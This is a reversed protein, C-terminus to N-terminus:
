FPVEDASVEQPREKFSAMEQAFPKYYPDDKGDDVFPCDYVAVADYYRKDGAKLKESVHNVFAKSPQAELDSIRSFLFTLVYDQEPTSESMLKRLLVNSMQDKISFHKFLRPSWTGLGGGLCKGVNKDYRGQKASDVFKHEIRLRALESFHPWLDDDIVQIITRISSDSNTVELEESIIRLAQTQEDPTLTNYMEQLFWQLKACEGTERSQFVKIFTDLRQKPPIEAILLTSYRAGAVFSPDFVRPLFSEISFPAKSQDIVRLLYDIFVIIADADDQKDSTKEHSRPNRIAQYIGRLIQEIGQQVNKESETQLKNVKLKPNQGGFAQGILAVGDAELGTRERVLAGLHHVADLIAGSFDRNEYQSRIELWLRESIVAQLNM